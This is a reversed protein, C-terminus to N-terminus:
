LNEQFEEIFHSSINTSIEFNEEKLNEEKLIGHIVENFYIM